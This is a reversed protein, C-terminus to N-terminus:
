ASVTERPLAHFIKTEFVAIASFQDSSLNAFSFKQRRERQCDDFRHEQWRHDAHNHRQSNGSIDQTSQRDGRERDLFAIM